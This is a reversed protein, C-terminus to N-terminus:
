GAKAFVERWTLRKGYRLMGLRFTRAALWLSGAAFVIMVLINIALQWAPIQTFAARMTLTVPATLPFFSLALALPGNPNTMLAYTFWYPIMIPLTFLGSIQQAERSETVTAGVAAMMSAVMLFSPLLILLMLVLYDGGFELRNIWDVTNRGILVGIVIFGAWAFLMTLGISIDGIIKGGMLQEPSVSTVIIEMTRNEKEEVVAQMLYSGSTLIVIFFLIGTMFPILINFWDKSRFQRSGDLSQVTFTSGDIIRTTVQPSQNALLNIILFDNFQNQISSDPEREYILKGTPHVPYDESLVYFAQIAKSDLAVRAEGESAYPIMKVQQDFFGQSPPLQKPNNLFGSLAVYGIPRSDSSLFQGLISVALMVAILLPMSILAFLFRKRLVHRKYEYWFIHLFKTM